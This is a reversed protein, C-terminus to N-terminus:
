AGTTQFDDACAAGLLVAAVDPAWGTDNAFELVDFTDPVAASAIVPRADRPAPAPKCHVMHIDEALRARTDLFANYGDPGTRRTWTEVVRALTARSSQPARRRFLKRHAAPLRVWQVHEARHM